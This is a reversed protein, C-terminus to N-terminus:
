RFVSVCVDFLETLSTVTFVTATTASEYGPADRLPHDETPRKAITPSEPPDGIEKKINLLKSFPRTGLHFHDILVIQRDLRGEGKTPAAHFGLEHEFSLRWLPTVGQESIERQAMPEEILDFSSFGNLIDGGCFCERWLPDMLGKLKRKEKRRCDLHDQVRILCGEQDGVPHEFVLDRNIPGSRVGPGGGNEAIIEVSQGNLGHSAKLTDLSTLGVLATM